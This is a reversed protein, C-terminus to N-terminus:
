PCRQRRGMPGVPGGLLAAVGVGAVAGASVHWPSGIWPLHYAVASVLGSVIVVPLWNTRGRFSMVLALFYVPLLFDIGFAEPDRILRGFTAGLWSAVIWGLYIPLAAGLYWPFTLPRGAQTHRETEAFQPDVLLFFAAAKQWFGFHALKPGLAASYLIHRFNVAFISLVILWPATRAGFLELGVMQSAGAYLSVSMLVAEPVTLGNDVALAGFLLGFPTTAIVMPVSDRLGRPFSDASRSPSTTESSAM